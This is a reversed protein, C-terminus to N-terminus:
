KLSKQARLLIEALELDAPRTIKPNDFSGEVMAVRHGLQEVASADDTFQERYPQRYAERLWEARFGQPTQVARYLSRDAATGDATRLSDIVPVVPIAAGHERAAELVRGIVEARVLPRVGDHVLIWEADPLAELGRRVSEFRTAGGSVVAHDVAFDYQRCLAEWREIQDAPLVAVVRGLPAFREISEMLLPRGGLLRFQKPEEAGMRSGSGGAVVVVGIM